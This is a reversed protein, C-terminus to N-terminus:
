SNLLHLRSYVVYDDPEHIARPSRKIRIISRHTKIIEIARIHLYFVPLYYFLQFAYRPM